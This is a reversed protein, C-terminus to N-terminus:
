SREGDHIKPEQLDMLRRIVWETVQSVHTDFSKQRKALLSDLESQMRDDEEAIRADYEAMIAKEENLRRQRAQEVIREAESQGERKITDAEAQAKRLMEAAEREVNVIDEIKSM